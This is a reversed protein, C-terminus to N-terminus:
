KIVSQINFAPLTQTAGRCCIERDFIIHKIRDMRGADVGSGLPAHNLSSLGSSRWVTRQTNLFGFMSHPVFYYWCKTSIDTPCHIKAQDM